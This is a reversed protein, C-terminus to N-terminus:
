PECSASPASPTVSAVKRAGSGGYWGLRYVDVTYARADTKVKVDLRSGVDVSM